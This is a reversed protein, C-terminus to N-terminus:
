KEIKYTAKQNGVSLELFYIGKALKNLNSLSVDSAGKSVKIQTNILVDGKVGTITANMNDDKSSNVTIGIKDTFPNPYLNVIFTNKREFSVAKVASYTYDGNQATSKLRYYLHGATSYNTVANSDKFDYDRIAQNNFVSP